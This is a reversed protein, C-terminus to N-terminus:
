RIFPGLGSKILKLVVLLSSSIRRNRWIVV